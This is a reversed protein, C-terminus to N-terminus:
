SHEEPDPPGGPPIVDACSRVPAQPDPPSGDGRAPPRSLARAAGASRHPAPGPPPEVIIVTASRHLIRVPVRSERGDVTWSSVGRIRGDERDVGVTLVSRFDASAAGMGIPFDGDAGDLM